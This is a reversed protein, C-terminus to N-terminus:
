EKKDVEHRCCRVGGLHDQIKTLLAGLQALADEDLAELMQFSTEDFIRRAIECQAKGEATLQVRSIRADNEDSTRQILGSKEMRKLTGSMTAPTVRTQDALTRQNLEGCRELEFLVSIQGSGLGTEELHASNLQYHKRSLWIIQRVIEVREDTAPPNNTAM